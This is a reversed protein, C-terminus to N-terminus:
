EQEGASPVIKLLPRIHNLLYFSGTVLLIEEKQDVAYEFADVPNNQIITNFKLGEAVKSIASPEISKRQEDQGMQFSTIIIHDSIERLVNLNNELNIAKNEGFSVLLVVSRDAYRKKMAQNLASLKQENHSGDLIITKGQWQIEEMRAPILISLVKKINHPKMNICVDKLAGYVLSFNRQQFEPLSVFYDENSLREDFGIIEFQAHKSRAINGVAEMIQPDQAHMFVKNGEHIIGAKQTAIKSLTNGLIETHDYGIDSILCIKDDRNVVNTADLLGGLGVEIVAYEVNQRKFLWYSFAVLLEFYSPQIMSEDVLDLFVGLESCYIDEPLTQLNIQARETVSDIHPSVSLGVRFGSELLLAAAYYSTSTKGSTGAVHVVKLTDQPNGLHTMLAKMRELTYSVSKSSPIFSELLAQAHALDKIHVM